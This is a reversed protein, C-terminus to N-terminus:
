NLEPSEPASWTALVRGDISVLEMHHLGEGLVEKVRPALTALEEPTPETMTSRPASSVGALQGRPVAAVVPAPAGEDIQAVPAAPSEVGRGDGRDDDRSGFPVADDVPLHAHRGAVWRRLEVLNGNDTPEWRSRAVAAALADLVDPDRETELMRVFVPAHKTLTDEDVSELTRRREAPDPSSLGDQLSRKTRQSSASRWVAVAVFIAIVLPAIAGAYILNNWV